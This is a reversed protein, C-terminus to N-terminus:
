RKPKPKKALPAKEIEAKILKALSDLREKDSERQRHQLREAVEIAMAELKEQTILDFTRVIRNQPFAIIQASM